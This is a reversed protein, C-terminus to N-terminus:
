DAERLGSKEELMRLHRYKSYQVYFTISLSSLTIACLPPCKSQLGGVQSNSGQYGIPDGWGALLSEHVGSLMVWFCVFLLSSCHYETRRKGLLSLSGVQARANPVPM